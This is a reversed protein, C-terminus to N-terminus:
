SSIATGAFYGFHHSLFEPDWDFIHGIYGITGLKRLMFIKDETCRDIEIIDENIHFM